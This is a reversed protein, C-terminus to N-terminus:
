EEISNNVIEDIVTNLYLDIKKHSSYIKFKHKFQKKNKCLYIPKALFGELFSYAIGYINEPFIIVIKEKGIMKGFVQSMFVDYGYEYGALRRINHEFELEVRETKYKKPM